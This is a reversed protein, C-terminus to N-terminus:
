GALRYWVFRWSSKKILHDVSYIVNALRDICLKEGSGVSVWGVPKHVSKNIKIELHHHQLGQMPPEKLFIITYSTEPIRHLFRKIGPSSIDQGYRLLYDIGHWAVEEQISLYPLM